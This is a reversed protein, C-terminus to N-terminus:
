KEIYGRSTLIRRAAMRESFKESKLKGRLFDDSRSDYREALENVEEYKDKAVKAAASVGKGIADWFGM